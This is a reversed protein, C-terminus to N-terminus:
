HVLCQQGASQSVPQSASWSVPQSASQSVLQGASQSVPQGASQSATIELSIYPIVFKVSSKNIWSFRSYNCVCTLHVHLRSENEAPITVALMFLKAESGVSNMKRFCKM